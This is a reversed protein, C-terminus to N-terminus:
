PGTLCGRSKGPPLIILTELGAEINGGAAFAKFRMKPPLLLMYEDSNDDRLVPNLGGAYLDYMTVASANGSPSLVAANKLAATFSTPEPNAYVILTSMDCCSFARWHHLTPQM